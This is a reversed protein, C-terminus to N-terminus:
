AAGASDTVTDEPDRPGTTQLGAVPLRDMVLDGDFGARELRPAEGHAAAMDDGTIFIVSEAQRSRGHGSGNGRALAVSPLLVVAGALLAVAVAVPLARRRGASTFTSM